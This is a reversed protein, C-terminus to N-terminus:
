SQRVLSAGILFGTNASVIPKLGYERAVGAAGWVIAGSTAVAGTTSTLSATALPTDPSGSSLDFLGVTLTGAGSMVGTIQLVYVGPLDASDRSFVASGPHLKDFGAGSAYATATIPSSSNSGFTFVAGLGSGSGVASASATVPDMTLGVPTGLSDTVMIKYALPQLYLRGRGSASLVLPNANPTGSSDSFTALPTSTGSAFSSVLGGALPDGNDDFFQQVFWPALGYTAM